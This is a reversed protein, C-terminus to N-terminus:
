RAAGLVGSSGSRLVSVEHVNKTRLLEVIVDAVSFGANVSDFRPQKIQTRTQSVLDAIRQAASRSDAEASGFM